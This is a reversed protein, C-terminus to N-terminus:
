GLCVLLLLMNMLVIVVPVVDKVGLTRLHRWGTSEQVTSVRRWDASETGRARPYCSGCSRGWSGGNRNGIWGLIVGLIRKKGTRRM